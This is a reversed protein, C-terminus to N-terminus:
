VWTSVGFKYKCNNVRETETERKEVREKGQGDNRLEQSPLLQLQGCEIAASDKRGEKM